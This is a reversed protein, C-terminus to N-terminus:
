TSSFIFKMQCCLCKDEGQFLNFAMFRRCWVTSLGNVSLPNEQRCEKSQNMELKLPIENTKIIVLNLQFGRIEHLCHSGQDSAANQSKLHPDM